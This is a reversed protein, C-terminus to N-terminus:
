QLISRKTKVANFIKKVVGKGGTDLNTIGM